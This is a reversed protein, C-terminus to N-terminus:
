DEDNQIEQSWFGSEELSPDVARMAAFCESLAGASRYEQFLCLCEQFRELSSNALQRSMDEDHNFCVIEGSEENICIPDGSGNAGIVFYGPPLGDFGWTEPGFSLYPAASKPLGVEILRQKDETSLPVDAFDEEPVQVFKGVGLELLNGPLAALYRTKFEDATM